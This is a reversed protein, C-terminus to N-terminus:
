SGSTASSSMFFERQHFGASLDPTVVAQLTGALGWFYTLEVALLCRPWWFAIAAVIL